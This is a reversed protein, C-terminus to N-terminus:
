GNKGKHKNLKKWAFVFIIIIIVVLIIIHFKYYDLTIFILNWILTASAGVLIDEPNNCRMTWMGLNETYTPYSVYLEKVNTNSNYFECTHYEFSREKIMDLVPMIDEKCFNKILYFKTDNVISNNYYIFNKGDGGIAIFSLSNQSATVTIGISRPSNSNNYFYYGRELSANNELFEKDINCHVIIEPPNISFAVKSISLLLAIFIVIYCYRNKM